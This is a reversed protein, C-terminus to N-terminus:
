TRRYTRVERYEVGGDVIRLGFWEYGRSFQRLGSELLDISQLLEWYRGYRYRLAEAFPELLPDLAVVKTGDRCKVWQISRGMM